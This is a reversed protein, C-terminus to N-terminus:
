TKKIIRTIYNAGKKIKGAIAGKVYDWKGPEKGVKIYIKTIEFSEKEM